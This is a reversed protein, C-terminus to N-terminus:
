EKLSNRLLCPNGHRTRKNLRGLYSLRLRRSEKGSNNRHVPLAKRRDGELGPLSSLEPLVFIGDVGSVILHGKYWGADEPEGTTVTGIDLAEEMERSELNWVYLQSPFEPTGFGTPMYLRGEKIFLGQGITAFSFGSDEILYNEIADEPKLVVYASDLAPLAFKIIRHRNGEVDRDRTTNGYGYLFYNDRDVVWQLAYGFDSNADDYAITQVKASSQLDPMVREVYCVDKYKEVPTKAAQSIYVLPLPDGPAYFDAGISVVNCHNHKHVSELPFEGLLKLSKGNFRYISLVGQNHGQVLYDGYIDMGQVAYGKEWEPHSCVFGTKPACATIFVFLALAAIRSTKM